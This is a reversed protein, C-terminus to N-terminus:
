AWGGYAGRLYSLTTFIGEFRGALLLDLPPRGGFVPARNPARLWAGADGVLDEALEVITLCYGLRDQADVDLAPAPQRLSEFYKTKGM